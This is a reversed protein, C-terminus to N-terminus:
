LLEELAGFRNNANPDDLVQWPAVLLYRLASSKGWGCPEEKYVNGSRDYYKIKGRVIRDLTEDFQLVWKTRGSLMDWDRDGNLEGKFTRTEPYYKFNEFYVRAPHYGDIESLDVYSRDLEFHLSSVGNHILPLESWLMTEVADNKIGLGWSGLSGLSKVIKDAIESEEPSPLRVYSNGFINSKLRRYHLNKLKDGGFNRQRRKNDTYDLDITGSAIVEFGEDFTIDYTQRTVDRFSTSGWDITGRFRRKYKDYSWGKEFMKKRPLSRGNDLAWKEPIVKSSYMLYPNERSFHLSELGLTGFQIFVTGLATDTDRARITKGTDMWKVTYYTLPVGCAACSHTGDSNRLMKEVCSRCFKHGCKTICAEAGLEDGCVKCDRGSM